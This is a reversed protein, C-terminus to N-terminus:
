EKEEKKRNPMIEVVSGDVLRRNWFLTMSKAEGDQNLAVLSVPDRVTDGKRAPRLIKVENM